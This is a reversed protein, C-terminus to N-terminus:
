ISLSAVIFNAFYDGMIGDFDEPSLKSEILDKTIPEEGDIQCIGRSVLLAMFHNIVSNMDVSSARMMALVEKGSLEKPTDPADAEQKARDADSVDRTSFDMVARCVAQMLPERQQMHRMTPSHLSLFKSELQNGAKAYSFPSILTYIFESNGGKKETESM